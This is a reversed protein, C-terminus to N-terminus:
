LEGLIEGRKAAYESDTILGEEHLRQLTRLRAEIGKPVVQGGTGVAASREDPNDGTMWGFVTWDERKSGEPASAVASPDSKPADEAGTVVPTDSEGARIESATVGAKKKAIM